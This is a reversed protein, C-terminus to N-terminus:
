SNRVPNDLTCRRDVKKGNQKTTDWDERLSPLEESRWPKQRDQDLQVGLRLNKSNTNQTTM